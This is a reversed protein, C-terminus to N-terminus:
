QAKKPRAVVFRVFHTSDAVLPEQEPDKGHTVPSGARKCADKRAPSREERDHQAPGHEERGEERHVLGSAAIQDHM